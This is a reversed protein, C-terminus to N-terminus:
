TLSLVQGTTTLYQSQGCRRRQSSETHAKNSGVAFWDGNESFVLSSLPAGLMFGAMSNGTETSFVNIKGEEAALLHGKRLDLITFNPAKGNGKELRQRIPRGGSQKDKIRPDGTDTRFALRQQSLPEVTQQNGTDETEDATGPDGAQGTTPKVERQHKATM